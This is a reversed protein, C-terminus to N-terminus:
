KKPKLLGCVLDPLWSWACKNQEAALVDRAKQEAALVDRAKQEAALDDRAKQEAALDDRAKQEAALVDRAKQEAALDDRAKQEAALDNRAKQQAAIIKRAKCTRTYNMREVLEQQSATQGVRMCFSLHASRRSAWRDSSETCGTHAGAIVQEVAEDAYQECYRRTEESPVAQRRTVNSSQKGVSGGGGFRKHPPVMNPNVEVQEVASASALTAVTVIAVQAITLFHNRIKVTNGM